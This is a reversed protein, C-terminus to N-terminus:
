LACSGMGVHQDAGLGTDLDTVSLSEFQPYLVRYERLNEVFAQCLNAVLEIDTASDTILVMPIQVALIPESNILNPYDSVPLRSVDLYEESETLIAATTESLPLLRARTYPLISGLMLPSPYSDFFLIAGVRGQQLQDITEGNVASIIETKVTSTSFIKEGINHLVKNDQFDYLLIPRNIRPREEDILQSADVLIHLFYYYVAFLSRVNFLPVGDVDSNLSSISAADLLAFYNSTNSVAQLMQEQDGHLHLEVQYQPYSAVLFREVARMARVAIVSSGVVHFNVATKEVQCSSLLPIVCCLIILHVITLRPKLNGSIGVM